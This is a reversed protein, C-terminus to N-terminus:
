KHYAELDHIRHNAVKLDEEFVAKDKELAFVREVVKNHKEVKKELQEIRYATLKNSTIIGGFTGVLTGVFSILAIIITSDM